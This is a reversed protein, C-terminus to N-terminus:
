GVKLWFMAVERRGREDVERKATIEVEWKANKGRKEGQKQSNKLQGLV